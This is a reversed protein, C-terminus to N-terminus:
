GKKTLNFAKLNKALQGPQVDKTLSTSYRPDNAQKKNAIVGVGGADEAVSTDLKKQAVAQGANRKAIKPDKEGSRNAINQRNIADGASTRKYNQLTADSVEAIGQTPEFVTADGTRRNYVGVTEGQANRAIARNVTGGGHKDNTFKVDSGHENRVQTAWAKVSTGGQAEGVNVGQSSHFPSHINTDDTSPTRQKMKAAHADDRHLQGVLARLPDTKELEKQARLRDMHRDFAASDFAEAVGKSVSKYGTMYYDVEEPHRASKDKLAPLYTRPNPKVGRLADKKGADYWHNANESVAQSKLNGRRAQDEMYDNWDRPDRIDNALMRDDLSAKVLLAIAKRAIPTIKVPDGRFDLEGTSFDDGEAMDRKTLTEADQKPRRYAVLKYYDEKSVPENNNIRTLINIIEPPMKNSIPNLVVPRAPDVANFYDRMNSLSGEEVSEGAHKFYQVEREHKEAAAKTPFTGLNKNGHKSLLRYQSGHKVIHEGLAAQPETPHPIMQVSTPAAPALKNTMIQEAEATYKGFLDKIIAQRTKADAEIYMRRLETGSRMPQGLVNFDFTPVTLIYGHETMNKTNKIDQLPQFYAPSGDKKTWSKFRPNEAMDKESVAFIVVTNASNVQINSTQLINEIQYPNTAQVIRDAPVGALQMFYAKESFTFPSKEGDVKNSTAIFVNNRGFKSALFEYV